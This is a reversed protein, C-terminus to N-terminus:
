WCENAWDAGTGGQLGTSALTMTACDADAEQAGATSATLTFTTANPREVTITYYGDPSSTTISCATNDYAGYTAKCKELSAANSLLASRGDTRRASIVNDGYYAMALSALIAIIAAVVMLEILTFGQLKKNM